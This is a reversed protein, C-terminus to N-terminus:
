NKGKAYINDGDLKIFNTTIFLNLIETATKKTSSHTEMFLALLKEKSLAHSPHSKFFRVLMERMWNIKAFRSRTTGM